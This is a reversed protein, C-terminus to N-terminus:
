KENETVQAEETVEETNEPEETDVELSKAYEDATMIDLILYRNRPLEKKELKLIYKKLIFVYDVIEKTLLTIKVDVKSTHSDGTYMAINPMKSRGASTKMLTQEFEIQKELNKKNQIIEKFSSVLEDKNTEAEELKANLERKKSSSRADALEDELDLIADNAEQAALGINKKEQALDALKKNLEPLLIPEIVPEEVSIIEYSDVKIHKPNIAMSTMTDKDGSEGVKMAQFYKSITVEEPKTCSTMIIAVSLLILILFIKKM